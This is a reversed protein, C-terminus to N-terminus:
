LHKLLFNVTETTADPRSPFWTHGGAHVTQLVTEANCNQATSTTVGGSRSEAVTSGCGNKSRFTDFVSSVSQFSAGHRTGGYYSVTDDGTGHMILVPVAGPTCGTVTPDYFAGAVSAVASVTDPAHCALAAAMGGGNSLGVAAVRDPDGGYYRAVDAVVDRVYRVDDNVSTNAYPAGGWANDRGQAYVVITNDAYRELQEYGRAKRADHGWGGFGIMIPYSKGEEYGSPLIIEYRRMGVSRSYVKGPTFGSDADVSGSQPGFSSGAAEAVQQVIVGAIVLSLLSVGAVVEPSVQPVARKIHREVSRAIDAQSSLAPAQADAPAIATASALPLSM